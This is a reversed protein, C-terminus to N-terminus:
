STLFSFTCLGFIQLQIQFTTNVTGEKENENKLYERSGYENQHQPFFSVVIIINSLWNLIFIEKFIELLKKHSKQSFIM